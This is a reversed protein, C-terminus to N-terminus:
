LGVKFTVPVKFGVSSTAGFSIPLAVYAEVECAGIAWTTGVDIEVKNNLIEHGMVKLYPTFADIAYSAQAVFGYDFHNTKDGYHQGFAIMNTLRLALGNAVYQGGIQSSVGEFEKADALNVLVDAYFGTQQWPMHNYAVMFALGANEWGGVGYANIAAGKTVVAQISGIDGLNFNGELWFDGVMAYGEKSFDLLANNVTLFKFSNAGAAIDFLIGNATKGAGFDSEFKATTAWWAFTGRAASLVNVNGVTVKLADVPKFWLSYNYFTVDKASFHMEAGAKETSASLKFFTNNDDWGSSEPSTLIAKTDKDFLTTGMKLQAAVDVAFVSTALAAATLIGVIKKM